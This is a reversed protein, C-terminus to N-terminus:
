ELVGVIVVRHMVLSKYPYAWKLVINVNNSNLLDKHVQIVIPLKTLAPVDFVTAENDSFDVDGIHISMYGHERLYKYFENNSGYGYTNYFELEIKIFSTEKIPIIDAVYEYTDTVGVITFVQQIRSTLGLYLVDTAGNPLLLLDTLAKNYDVGITSFESTDPAVEEDEFVVIDTDTVDFEWETYVPNIVTACSICCLEFTTYRISAFSTQTISAFSHRQDAYITKEKAHTICTRESEQWVNTCCYRYTNYICSTFCTRENFVSDIQSLIVYRSSSYEDFSVYACTRDDNYIVYAPPTAIYKNAYTVSYFTYDTYRETYTLVRELLLNKNSYTVYYREYLSDRDDTYTNYLHLHTQAESYLSEWSDFCGSIRESVGLVGSQVFTYLITHESSVDNYDQIRYAIEHNASIPATIETSITTTADYRINYAQPVVKPSAVTTAAIQWQQISASAVYTCIDYAHTVFYTDVINTATIQWQQKSAFFLTM